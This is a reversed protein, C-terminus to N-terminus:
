CHECCGRAGTRALGFSAVITPSVAPAGFFALASCGRGYHWSLSASLIFFFGFVPCVLSSHGCLM